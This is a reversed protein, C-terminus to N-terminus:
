GVDWAYSQTQVGRDQLNRTVTRADTCIRIVEDVLLNIQGVCKLRYQGVDGIGAETSHKSRELFTELPLGARRARVDDPVILEIVTFGRRQAERAQVETRVNDFVIGRYWEIATEDICQSVYTPDTQWEIMDAFHQLHVRYNEKNALIEEVTVSYGISSLARSYLEKLWGTFNVLVFGRAELAHALTTKGSGLGGALAVKIPSGNM